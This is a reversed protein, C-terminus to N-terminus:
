CPQGPDYQHRKQDGPFADFKATSDAPSTPFAMPANQYHGFVYWHSTFHALHQLADNWVAHAREQANIYSPGLVPELRRNVDACRPDMLTVDQFRQQHSPPSIGDWEHSIAGNLAVMPDLGALVLANYRTTVQGNFKVDAPGDPKLYRNITYARDHRYSSTAVYAYDRNPGTAVSEISRTGNWHFGPTFDLAPPNWIRVNEGLDITFPPAPWPDGWQGLAVEGYEYIPTSWIRPPVNVAVMALASDALESVIVEVNGNWVMRGSWDAEPSQTTHQVTHLNVQNAAPVFTWDFQVPTRNPEGVCTAPEGRATPGNCSLSVQLPPDWNGGGPGGGGSGPGSYSCYPYPQLNFCECRGFVYSWYAGIGCYEEEALTAFAATIPPAFADAALEWGTVRTWPAPHGRGLEQVVRAVLTTSAPLTCNALEAIDGNNRNARYRIRVDRGAAEAREQQTASVDLWSYRYKWRWGKEDHCRFCGWSPRAERAEAMAAEPQETPSSSRETCGSVVLLLLIGATRNM